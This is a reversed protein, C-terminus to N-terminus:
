CKQVPFLDVGDPWIQCFEFCAPALEEHIVTPAVSTGVARDGGQIGDRIVIGDQLLHARVLVVPKTKKHDGPHIMAPSPGAGILEILQSREFAPAFLVLGWFRDGGGSDVFTADDIHGPGKAWVRLLSDIFAAATGVVSRVEGAFNLAISWPGIPGVAESRVTPLAPWDRGAKLTDWAPASRQPNQYPPQLPPRPSPSFRRRAACSPVDGACTSGRAFFRDGRRTWNAPLRLIGEASSCSASTQLSGARI